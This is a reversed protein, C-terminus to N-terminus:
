RVTPAAQRFPPHAQATQNSTSHVPAASVETWKPIRHSLTSETIAGPDKWLGNHDISMTGLEFDLVLRLVDYGVRLSLFDNQADLLDSLASVLDRATTAGFQPTAGPKPPEDLRLRALDVQAIAVQVAARRLEFNLEALHTLRLTNRLSQSIRDEFLMYDRRARQYEIQADRFDNRDALRNLPSNLRLGAQLSSTRADFSVPHNADLTGTTGTVTLTLANRLHQGSFDVKRWNDVLRARANMWDLRNEKAVELAKEESVDVQPLVAIELRTATQNLSAGLLIGSLRSALDILTSRATEFNTNQVEAAIAKLGDGVATLDKAQQVSRDTFKALKQDLTAPNLREPEISLLATDPSKLLEALQAKRVPLIAALSKIDNQTVSLLAFLPKELGQLGHIYETLTEPTLPIERNRIKSLIGSLQLDISTASPDASSFQDLLPDKIILPVNPPLGIEIKYADVRSQYAARSSLLNSQANFLAQLAQDVQLRSTIRGADFAASLQDFSERLRAVNSELNQIRKQEELIGLFGDARPAGTRGSPTGAIIGLGSAGVIGNRSPGEGSARGSVTKVYFGNQFQEMQRVNALLTREAQTLKELTQARGVLRLLPQVLSFNLLSNSTSKLNHGNFDWLFSNAFGAVLEGGSSTLWRVNGDTLFSLHRKETATAPNAPLGSHFKGDWGSKAENNLTAQPSLQFRQFTVDLASLYLDEKERQFDRSNLLALHVASKQDLIIGGNKDKPLSHKWEDNRTTDPAGSQQWESPGSKGDVTQMLKHSVPDDEPMPPRDPNSPDFLRSEPNPEINPNLPTDRLDLAEMKQRIASYVEADAKKRYM